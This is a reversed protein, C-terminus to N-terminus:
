SAATLAASDMPDIFHTKLWRWVAWGRMVRLVKEGLARLRLPTVLLVLVGAAFGVIRSM